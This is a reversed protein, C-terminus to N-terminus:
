SLHFLSVWFLVQIKEAIHNYEGDPDPAYRYHKWTWAVDELSNPLTVVGPFYARVSAGLISSYGLFPKM